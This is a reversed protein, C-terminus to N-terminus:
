NKNVQIIQQCSDDPILRLMLTHRRINDIKFWSGKLQVVEGKEFVKDKLTKQKLLDAMTPSIPALEGMGTDM